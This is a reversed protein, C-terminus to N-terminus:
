GAGCVTHPLHSWICRAKGFSTHVACDDLQVVDSLEGNRFLVVQRHLTGAAVELACRLAGSRGSALIRDGQCLCEVAPAYEPPILSLLMSGVATAARARARSM